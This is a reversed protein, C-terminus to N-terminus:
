KYEVAEGLDIMRQNLSVKTPDGYLTTLIRGYKEKKGFVCFVKGDTEAILKELALKASTNVKLEPANIGALRCTVLYVGGSEGVPAIVKITDGDHIKSVNAFMSNGDLCGWEKYLLKYHEM